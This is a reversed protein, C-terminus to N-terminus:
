ATRRLRKANTTRREIYADIEDSRVRIKPRVSGPQRIDVASLEGSSILRYAHDTSCCLTKAAHVVTLLSVAVTAM